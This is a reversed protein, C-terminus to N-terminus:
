LAARGLCIALGRSISEPTYPKHVVPVHEFAEPLVASDGYGTTFIFPVQLKSLEEAISFSSTAGLNIDLVAVNPMSSKLWALAAEATTFTEVSAAGLERLMMETDLAILTQDEILLAHMGGLVNPAASTVLMERSHPNGGAAAGGDRLFHRCLPIQVLACGVAELAHAVIAVACRSM